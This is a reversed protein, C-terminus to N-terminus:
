GFLSDEDIKVTATAAARDARLKEAAETAKAELRDRVDAYEEGNAKALETAVADLYRIFTAKEDKGFVETVKDRILKDADKTSKGKAVQNTVFAERMDAVISDAREREVVNFNGSKWAELKATLKKLKEAETSDKGTGNFTNNGITIGGVEAIKAIVEAPIDAWTVTVPKGGVTRIVTATPLTITVQYM